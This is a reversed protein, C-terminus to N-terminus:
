RRLAIAQLDNAADKCRDTLSELVEYIAKLKVIQRADPEERFLRSMATRMVHDAQAEHEAVERCARVIAQVRRPQGLSALAQHLLRASQLTLEALKVAEPTVRTVHYLHLSQAADETLDLVDDLHNALSHVLPRPCPALWTARLASLIDLLGEDGRKEIAEIQRVRGDSDRVDGLLQTLTETAEVLLAGQAALSAYLRRNAPLRQTLLSRLTTRERDEVLRPADM